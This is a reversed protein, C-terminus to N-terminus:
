RIVWRQGSRFTEVVLEDKGGRLMVAGHPWTGLFQAGHKSYPEDGRRGGRPPGECSVVLRPKAWAALSPTNSTRSGHHPAMLVDVPRPPLRLLMDLGTGELDGTLLISQQRHRILLVLSRSNENGEPGLVPPHLVEMDIEGATLVDGAQVQRMPIGRQEIAQLTLLVADTPRQAFSPTMTIQGVAFRDLLDPLGNFHDLDAHSLLVEDIRQIGRSWLFPAIQRKTVEPGNLAGADYLIVRGDSSELVVCNGHGVALFTCRLEEPASRFAAGALGVCLWALMAPLAYRWRWEPWPLLLVALLGPYFVWLWWDPVSPVYWHGGPLADGLAVLGNCGALCWKTVLAFVPVLPWCIAASLLLLFGSVLAISTLLVAPPGLLVGVPSVLHYRAAILPALALWVALTVAYALLLGRGFNLLLRQWLPRSEEILRELPDSSRDFLGVFGWTLVAVALFSLQCGTNFIDMPNLIAVVLWALAFTNAPLPTRRLILGGSFAGVMVASRIAPPRGGTMLAYLLLLGAVLAAGRRKRVGALRLLWWLFGALVVLHQGSIALVHIVGTRSYRDWDDQSMASGDGLLLGMAISSEEAPLSAELQRNGWARIEALGTSFTFTSGEDVRRVADASKQVVMWAQIRQDRLFAAYDLEGPNGPTTPASLRGTAEITDGIRYGNLRGEVSLRARGTVPQWGDPGHLETLQLIATTSEPRPFSRLPGGLGASVTPGDILVGRLQALRPEAAAFHGIDDGRYLRSCVHHYAAGIATVAGLLYLLPLGARDQRTALWAILLAAV